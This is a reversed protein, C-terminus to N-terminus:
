LVGGDSVGRLNVSVQHSLSELFIRKSFLKWKVNLNELATINQRFINLDPQLFSQGFAQLIKMFQEQYHIEESPHTCRTNTVDTRLDSMRCLSTLANHRRGNPPENEQNETLSAKCRFALPTKFFMRWNHLLFHHFLEFLPGLCRSLLVSTVFTYTVRLGLGNAVFLLTPSIM